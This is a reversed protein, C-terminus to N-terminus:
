QASDMPDVPEAVTLAERLWILGQRSDLLHALGDIEESAVLLGLAPQALWLAQAGLPALPGASDLVAGVPACGYCAFAAVLGLVAGALRAKRTM